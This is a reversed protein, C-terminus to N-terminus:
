HASVSVGTSYESMGMGRMSSVSNCQLFLHCGSIKENTSKNEEHIEEEEEESEGNNSQNADRAETESPVYDSDSSDHSDGDTDAM